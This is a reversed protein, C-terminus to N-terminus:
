PPICPSHFTSKIHCMAMYNMHCVFSTDPNHQGQLPAFYHWCDLQFSNRERLPSTEWFRPFGVHFGRLNSSSNGKFFPHEFWPFRALQPLPLPVPVRLFPLFVGSTQSNRGSLCRLDDDKKTKINLIFDLANGDWVLFELISKLGGGWFLTCREVMFVAYPSSITFIVLHIWNLLKFLDSPNQYM